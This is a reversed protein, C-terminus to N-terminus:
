VPTVAGESFGHEVDGVPMNFGNPSVGYKGDCCFKM